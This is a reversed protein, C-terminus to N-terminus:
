YKKKKEEEEEEKERWRRLDIPFSLYAVGDSHIILRTCRFFLKSNSVSSYFTDEGRSKTGVKYERWIKYMM